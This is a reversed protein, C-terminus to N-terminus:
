SNILKDSHFLWDVTNMAYLTVTELFRSLYKERRTPDIEYTKGTLTIRSDTLFANHYHLFISLVLHSCVNREEKQKGIIGKTIIWGSETTSSVYQLSCAECFLLPILCENNCNLEHNIKYQEEARLSQFIATESVNLFVLCRKSNCKESGVKKELPYIKSRVLCSKFNRTSRFSVFRATSFVKKVEEDAYLLQLKKRLTQSLKKFTPNHTVVLLVGNVKKNNNEYNQNFSLVKKFTSKLLIELIGEKVFGYKLIEM